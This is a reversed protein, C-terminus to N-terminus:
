ELTDARDISYLGMSDTKFDPMHSKFLFDDTFIQDKNLSLAKHDNNLFHYIHANLLSQDESKKIILIEVKQYKGNSATDYGFSFGHSTYVQMLRDSLIWNYICVNFEQSLSIALSPKGFQKQWQKLQANLKKRGKFEAIAYLAVMSTDMKTLVKLEKFYISDLKLLSDSYAEFVYGYPNQPLQLKYNAALSNYYLLNKYDLQRIEASDLKYGDLRLSKSFLVPVNENFNLRALDFIKGDSLVRPQEEITLKCSLLLSLSLILLYFFLKAMKSSIM